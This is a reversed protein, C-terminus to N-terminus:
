SFSIGTEFKIPVELNRKEAGLTGVSLIAM